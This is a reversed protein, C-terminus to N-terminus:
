RGKRRWNFTRALLREAQVEFACNAVNDAAVAKERLREYTRWWMGKPKPPFPAALGTEGGLRRRIKGTRRIARDLM